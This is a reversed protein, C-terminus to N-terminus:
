DKFLSIKLREKIDLYKRLHCRDGPCVKIPTGEGDNCLPKDSFFLGGENNFAFHNGDTQEFWIEKILLGQFGHAMELVSDIARRNYKIVEM